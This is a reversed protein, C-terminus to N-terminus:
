RPRSRVPATRPSSSSRADEEAAGRARYGLVQPIVDGARQVIVMDGVRVDLREIEDANHLRPARWWRRRRCQGARPRRGADARRHPRGPHPHREAAHAGARGPVQPRDGLAARPQRLGAAGALRHPRGQLRRRRHRLAAVAARRRDERYFARVEDPTRCLKTLPNIKFGWDKLLKLYESHTKWSARSPRAGPM